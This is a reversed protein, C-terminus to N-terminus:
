GTIRVDGKFVVFVLAIDLLAVTPPFLLGYAISKTGVLAVAWLTVFVAGNRFGIERRAVGITLLIWFGWLAIVAALGVSGPM